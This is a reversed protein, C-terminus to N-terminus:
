TTRVSFLRFEANKYVVSSHLLFNQMLRRQRSLLLHKKPQGEDNPGRPLPLSFLALSLTSILPLLWCIKRHLPRMYCYFPVNVLLRYLSCAFAFIGCHLYGCLAFNSLRPIHFFTRPLSHFCPTKPLLFYPTSFGFYEPGDASSM